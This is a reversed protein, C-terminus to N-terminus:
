ASFGDFGDGLFADASRDALVIQIYQDEGGAKVGCRTRQGSNINTAPVVDRQFFLPLTVQAAGHAQLHM